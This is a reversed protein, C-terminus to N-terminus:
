DSKDCDENQSTSPSDSKENLEIASATIQSASTVVGAITAPVAYLQGLCAAAIGVSINGAALCAHTAILAANMADKKAKIEREREKVLKATYSQLKKEVEGCVKTSTKSDFVEEDKCSSKFKSICAAVIPQFYLSAENGNMSQINKGYNDCKFQQLTSEKVKHILEMSEVKIIGHLREDLYKGEQDRIVRDYMKTKLNYTAKNEELLEHSIERFGAPSQKAKLLKYKEQSNL